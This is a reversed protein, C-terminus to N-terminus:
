KYYDKVLQILTNLEGRASEITFLCGTIVWAKDKVQRFANEVLHIVNGGPTLIRCSKQDNCLTGFTYTNRVGNAKTESPLIFTRGFLQENYKKTYNMTNKKILNSLEETAKSIKQKLTLPDPIIIWTGLQVNKISSAIDVSTIPSGTRKELIWCKDTNM